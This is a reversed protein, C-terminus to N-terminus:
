TPFWAVWIAQTRPNNVQGEIGISSLGVAFCMLTTVATIFLICSNLSRPRKAICTALFRIWNQTGRKMLLCTTGLFIIYISIEGLGLNLEDGHGLGFGM